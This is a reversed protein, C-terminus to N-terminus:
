IFLTLNKEKLPDNKDKYANHLKRDIYPKMIDLTTSLYNEENFRDKSAQQKGLIKADQRLIIKVLPVAFLKLIYKMFSAGRYCLVVHVANERDNLPTLFGYFMSKYGQADEWILQFSTPNKYRAYQYVTEGEFLAMIGSHKGKEHYRVEVGDDSPSIKIDVERRMSDMRLFGKHIYHTHFPDLSNELIDPIDSKASRSYTTYIFKDLDLDPMEDFKEDIGEDESNGMYAFVVGNKERVQISQLGINAFKREKMGPMRILKGDLDYEWGHYPCVMCKSNKKGLSIPTNRHPCRDWFGKIEGSENRFLVLPKNKFSSKFFSKGVKKSLAFAYWFNNPITYPNRSKLETMM